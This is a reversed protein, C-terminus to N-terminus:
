LIESSPCPKRGYVVTVPQYLHRQEDRITSRIREIFNQVADYPWAMTSTLHRLFIDEIAQLLRLQNLRGLERLRPDTNWGSIPWKYSRKTIDQFGSGELVQTSERWISFSRGSVQEVQAMTQEWLAYIPGLSTDDDWIPTVSHEVVEIYGGPRLSAWCQRLFADWDPISGFMERVYILDFQEADNKTKTLQIM